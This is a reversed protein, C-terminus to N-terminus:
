FTLLYNTLSTRQIKLENRAGNHHTPAGHWQCFLFVFIFVPIRLWMEYANWAVIFSSPVIFARTISIVSCLSFTSPFFHKSHKKKKKWKKRNENKKIKRRCLPSHAIQNCSVKQSHTNKKEDWGTSRAPRILKRQGICHNNRTDQTCSSWACFCLWFPLSCLASSICTSYACTMAFPAVILSYHPECWKPNDISSRPAHNAHRIQRSPKVDECATCLPSPPHYRRRLRCYYRPYRGIYACKKKKERKLMGLCVRWGSVIGGAVNSLMSQPM